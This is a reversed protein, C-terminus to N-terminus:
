KQLASEIDYENMIVQPRSTFTFSKEIMKGVSGLKEFKVELTENCKIGKLLSLKKNLLYTKRENLLIMQNLPDVEDLIKMRYIIAKNKFATIRKASLKEESYKHIIPKDSYKTEMVMKILEKIKAPLHSKVIRKNLIWNAIEMSKRKITESAEHMKCKANQIWNEFWVGKNPKMIPVDIDPVLSDLLNASADVDSNRKEMTQKTSSMKYISLLGKVRNKGGHSIEDDVDDNRKEMTQKTSSM